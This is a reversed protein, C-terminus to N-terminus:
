PARGKLEAKAQAALESDGYTKLIARYVEDADERRDEAKYITALRMLAFGTLDAEPYHTVLFEISDAASEFDKQQFSSEALLFRAEIEYRSEPYANLLARFADAAADFRRDRFDEKAQEFASAAREIELSPAAGGAAVSAIERLPYARSEPAGKIADPVLTAARQRWDDLAFRSLEAKLRWEGNERELSAVRARWARDDGALTARLWLNGGAYASFLALSFILFPANRM